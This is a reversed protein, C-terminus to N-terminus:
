QLEMGEFEVRDGVKVGHKKCFGAVVELVFQSPATGGLSETSLPKANAVIEVVRRNAGIFIMDLPIYTNKMWFTHRGEAPYVFLMGRLPDLHKRYMLGKRKEWEREALEVEVTVANGTRTHIVVTPPRSHSPAHSCHCCGAMAVAALLVSFANPAKRAKMVKM